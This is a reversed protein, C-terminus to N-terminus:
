AEPKALKAQLEAARALMAEAEKTLTAAEQELAAKEADDRAKKSADQKQKLGALIGEHKAVQAKLREITKEESKITPARSRSQAPFVRDRFDSPFSAGAPTHMLEGVKGHLLNCVANLHNVFMVRDGLQTFDTLEQDAKRQAEVVLDAKPVFAALALGQKKVEDSPVTALGPPWTRLRELEEGLVPNRVDSPRDNGLFRVILPSTRDNNTVTMLGNFIANFLADLEFDALLARADAEAVNENLQIELLFAAKWEERLPALESALPETLPHAKLWVTIHVLVLLYELMELDNSYTRM